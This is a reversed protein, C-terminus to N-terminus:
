APLTPVKQMAMPMTSTKKPQHIAIVAVTTRSPTLRHVLIIRIM